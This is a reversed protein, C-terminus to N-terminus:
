AAREMQTRLRAIRTEPAVQARERYLRLMPNDSDRKGPQDGHWLHVLPFSGYPWVRRTSAREWFEVDEGGWGVFAEDFGGIADYATRLIAVSGGGELNQAIADPAVDTLGARAELVQETHDRRLYFVFRKLNVVEWGQQLRALVAAAYDGPMLMDNDHFLLVGSRAVKAGVNFAWSRCYQFSPRPLPTHVYRVWPPLAERIRQADDQEVVICEVAPGRQGAISELTALLLPLRAIGRHGIVVSVSPTGQGSPSIARNIPHDRLARELLSRGLWPLIAPAGLESTWQWCCRYGQGDPAAELREHRNCLALFDDGPARVARRYRWWDKLLTGAVARAYRFM